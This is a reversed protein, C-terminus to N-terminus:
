REGGVVRADSGTVPDTAEIARIAGRHGSPAATRGIGRPRPNSHPLVGIYIRRDTLVKRLRGDPRRHESRDDRENSSTIASCASRGTPSAISWRRACPIPIRRERGAPASVSTRSSRTSSDGPDFEVYATGNEVSSVVGIPNDNIDVVPTGKAEDSFEDM